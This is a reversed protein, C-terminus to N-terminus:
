LNAEILQPNQSDLESWHDKSAEIEFDLQSAFKSQCQMMKHMRASIYSDEDSRDKSNSHGSSNTFMRLVSSMQSPWFPPISESNFDVQM